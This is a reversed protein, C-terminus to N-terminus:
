SFIDKLDIALTEFISSNAKEEGKYIGIIEYYGESNLVNVQISNFRPDVIWYEKVGFREYLNLKRIYDHHSNSPSVIEVILTPVGEYINGKLGENNCIVVLDPIVKNTYEEKENKLKIDIPATFPECNKEDFYLDFKTSLKRSVRQHQISPSAQNFVEGNIFELFEDNNNDINLFEDYSTKTNNISEM